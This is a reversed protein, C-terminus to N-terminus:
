QWVPLVLTFGSCLALCGPLAVTYVPCYVTSAIFARHLAMWTLVALLARDGVIHMTALKRCLWNSCFGFETRLFQTSLKMSLTKIAYCSCELRVEGSLFFPQICHHLASWWQVISCHLRTRLLSSDRNETQCDSPHTQRNGSSRYKGSQVSVLMFNPHHPIITYPQEKPAPGLGKTETFSVSRKLMCLSKPCNWVGLKSTVTQPRGWGTGVPIMRQSWLHAEPLLTFFEWLCVGLQSLHSPIVQLKANQTQLTTNNEQLSATQRQVAM